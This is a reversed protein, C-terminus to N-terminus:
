RGPRTTTTETQTPIGSATLPPPHLRLCPFSQFVLRGSGMDMQPAVWELIFALYLDCLEGKGIIAEKVRRHLVEKEKKCTRQPSFGPFADHLCHLRDTLDSPLGMASVVLDRFPYTETPFEMICEAALELFQPSSLLRDVESRNSLAPAVQEELNGQV